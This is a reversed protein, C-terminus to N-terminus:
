WVTRQACADDLAAKAAAANEKKEKKRRVISVAAAAVFIVTSLISVTLGVVYCSPRYVLKVTHTGPTTEFALLSDLTKVPTQKEGDVTIIWGEDYPISTFILTRNEPVTITGEIETSAFSTIELQYQGLDAFVEKARESDLSFFYPVDTKYYLATDELKMTVIVNEGPEFSGIMKVCYTDNSFFDGVDEGNVTMSAERKYESPFFVYVPESNEATFRFTVSAARSSNSPVLKRHGSSFIPETNDYSTEVSIPQYIGSGESENGGEDSGLMAATLLNQRILPSPSSDELDFSWVDTSVAYALSLACPNYYAYGYDLEGRLIEESVGAPQEDEALIYKLGLLADAAPTGGAYKSWHSKSCYGLDGLLKIVSANLTSTSNSVGYTGLMMSENTKRHETKDMRYFESGFTEADYERIAEVSPSVKNLFDVYSTRLTGHVDEDFFVMNCLGSVFLEGSVAILLVVSAAGKWRRYRVANLIILYAGIFGLSIWIARLDRLWEYDRTQLYVLLGVLGACCFVIKPYDTRELECFARYAFVVLLFILMFSYRYYLWNPKQMGHWFIDVPSCNFSFVLLTIMAGGGIKEATRINKGTFFFPLFILTLLGSYVFPLGDPRVTDYSSPFLKALFDAFDFRQEFTFDATSFTTKGFKLSYYTTLLVAAAIGLALVSYVAVRILSLIFHSEEGVRNNEGAAMHTFYWYFFYFFTFICMMYGIYFNCICAAALSATYVIFRKRSILEELGWLLLPLLILEDIWMTNHAQVIAYSSLAYMTSFILINVHKSRHRSRLYFAMTLGCCGAKLLFMLFLAETIHDPSFLLTILSFPSAVYYAFIGMFEGGLARSWTYLLSDGSLLKARLEDFFYVYQGSLDLILVSSDGAPYVEMCFYMLSLLVMPLLFSVCFFVWPRENFARAFIRFFNRRATKKGTSSVAGGDSIELIDPNNM